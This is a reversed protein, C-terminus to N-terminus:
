QGGFAIGQDTLLPELRGRAELAALDDYGGVHVDGVFVQPVTFRGSLDHMERRAEIDREVNIATYEVGKRKLLRKAMLCYPCWPSLYVRVTAPEDPISPAEPESM